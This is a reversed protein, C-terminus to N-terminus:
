KALIGVFEAISEAMEEKISKHGDDILGQVAVPDILYFKKNGRRVWHIAVYTNARYAFLIDFPKTMRDLDSIKYGFNDQKIKILTPLQHDKFGAKLNFPKDGVSIKAEIFCTEKINYSLWKKLATCFQMEYNNKAM